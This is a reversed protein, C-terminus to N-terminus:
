GGLRTIIPTHFATDRFTWLRLNRLAQAINMVPAQSLMSADVQRRLRRASIAKPHLDNLKAVRGRLMGFERRTEEPRSCLAAATVADKAGASAANAGFACVAHGPNEGFARDGSAHRHKVTAVNLETDPTGMQEKSILAHIHTIHVGLAACANVNSYANAITRGFKRIFGYSGDSLSAQVTLREDGNCAVIADGEAHDRACRFAM